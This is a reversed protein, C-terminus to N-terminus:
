EFHWTGHGPCLWAEEGIDPNDWCLEVVETKGIITRGYEEAYTFDFYCVATQFYKRAFLGTGWTAWKGKGTKGACARLQAAYKLDNKEGEEFEYTAITEASSGDIGPLEGVGHNLDEAIAHAESELFEACKIAQKGTLIGQPDVEAARLAAEAAERAEAAAIGPAEAEVRAAGQM